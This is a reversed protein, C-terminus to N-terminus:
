PLAPAPPAIPGSSVRTKSISNRSTLYGPVAQSILAEFLTLRDDHNLL